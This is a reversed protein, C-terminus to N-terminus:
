SERQQIIVSANGASFCFPKWIALYSQLSQIWIYRWLIKLAFTQKARTKSCSYTYRWTNETCFLNTKLSFLLFFGLNLDWFRGILGLNTFNWICLFKLQLWLHFHRYMDFFPVAPLSLIMFQKPQCPFYNTIQTKISSM